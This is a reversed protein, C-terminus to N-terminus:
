FSFDYSFSSKRDDWGKAAKCSATRVLQIEINGAPGEDEEKKQVVKGRGPVVAEGRGGPVASAKRETMSIPPVMAAHYTWKNPIHPDNYLDKWQDHLMWAADGNVMYMADHWYTNYITCM